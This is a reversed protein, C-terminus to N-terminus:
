VPQLANAELKPWGSDELQTSQVHLATSSKM